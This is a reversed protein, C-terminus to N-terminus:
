TLAQPITPPSVTGDGCGGCGARLIKETRDQCAPPGRARDRAEPEVWAREPPPGSCPSPHSKAPAPPPAKRCFAAGSTRVVRGPGSIKKSSHKPQPPGRPLDGTEPEVWAHGSPPGFMPIKSFNPLRNSIKSHIESNKPRTLKILSEPSFIKKRSRKSFFQFRKSIESHPRFNTPCTLKIPSEPLFIKKRPRKSITQFNELAAYFKQAM